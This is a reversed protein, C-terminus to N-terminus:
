GEDLFTAFAHTQPFEVELEGAPQSLMLDARPKFTQETPKALM